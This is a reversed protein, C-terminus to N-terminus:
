ELTAYYSQLFAVADGKGKAKATVRYFHRQIQSADGMMLSDELGADEILYSPNGEPVDSVVTAENWNAETRWWGDTTFLTISEILDPSLYNAEFLKHAESLGSEANNMSLTQDYNKSSINRLAVVQQGVAIGLISLVLVMLLSTILAAGDQNKKIHKM